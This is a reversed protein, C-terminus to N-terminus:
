RGAQEQPSARRSGVASRCYPMSSSKWTKMPRAPISHSNPVQPRDNDLLMKWLSHRLWQQALCPTTAEVHRLIVAAQTVLLQLATLGRTPSNGTGNRVTQKAGGRMSRHIEIQVDMLQQLWAPSASPNLPYDVSVLIKGSPLCSTQSAGNEQLHTAHLTHPFPLLDHQCQPRM